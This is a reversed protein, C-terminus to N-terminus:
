AVNDWLERIEPEPDRLTQSVPGDVDEINVGTPIGGIQLTTRDQPDYHDWGPDGSSAFRILRGSLEAAVGLHQPHEGIFMPVGPRDLNSFAYPIDLGHCSGLLGDFAASPHCFWYSWVPGSTKAQALRRATVRFTEDTQLASLLQANTAGVRHTRYTALAESSQHGFRRDFQERLDDETLTAITPDFATFLHMEDRNTGIVLPRPDEAIAALADQPEPGPLVAGGATPSFATLADSRHAEIEAQVSLLEATTLSAPDGPSVDRFRAEAERSREVSRIQTISPSMAWFRHALGTTRTAAALSLVSTGGASEGFVTVQDPNGGFAEVNRQVWDLVALQDALGLDAEGLFGFAGLRYNCTIVVLDGLGALNSGHYWPMAGGGNIFAGGHIWVLVPRPRGRHDPTFVNLHLCEEDMELSTAGLLRELTGPNQPCQARYETADFGGRLPESRSSRTTQRALNTIAEPIRFRDATAYPLGKFVLTELPSNASPGQSLGTIQGIPTPITRLDSM